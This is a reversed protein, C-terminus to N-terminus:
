KDTLYRKKMAALEKYYRKSERKTLQHSWPVRGSVDAGKTNYEAYYATLENEPKGWNHWGESRVFDGMECNLFVTQAYMRWPRGLHMKNIEPEATIKCDFIAYGFDNGEPTSAATIFSNRKCHIHCNDMFLKASGFIFDTTGEIYSDVMLIEVDKGNAYFTDQNGILRCNEIVVGDAEVHLAVAQAKFEASNEVTLSKLRTDDGLIKFSYCDFTNLVGDPTEKSSYDDYTLITGEPSEGVLTVKNIWSPIELKEKYVGNKIFITTPEYGFHKCSLVAEQVTTFDGSGDKAVVIDYEQAFLGQALLLM